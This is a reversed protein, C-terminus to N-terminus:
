AARAAAIRPYLDREECVIRHRLRTLLLRTAKCFGAWDAVIANADWRRCYDTFDDAIGGMEREMRTALAATATDPSRKLLPYLHKDEKALHVALLHQLRWRLAGLEPPPAQRAVVIAMLQGAVDEIAAHEASLVEARVLPM